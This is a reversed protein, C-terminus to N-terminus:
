RIKKSEGSAMELGQIIEQGFVYSLYLPFIIWAGNPVIWLFFLTSWDNHGINAFGSCAEILWYLITKAFTLFTTSYGLLVAYIAVRGTLTRSESLKSFIGMSEKDPAGRGQTSDQEGFKYVLALYGLYALTEILNFYSQAATWGSKQDWALQGYVYDVRGYLEYPTWLPKHLSGGPMSYPRLLVYGMDWIVLPLSVALWILALNSPTHSWESSRKTATSRGVRTPTPPPSAAASATSTQTTRKTPSAKVPSETPAPPEPFDTPHNRTAVM